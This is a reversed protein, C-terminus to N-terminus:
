VHECNYVEENGQYGQFMQIDEPQFHKGPCAAAGFHETVERGGEKFGCFRQCGVLSQIVAEEGCTEDPREEDGIGQPGATHGDEEEATYANGANIASHRGVLFYEEYLGCGREERQQQDAKDLALFIKAALALATIKIEM